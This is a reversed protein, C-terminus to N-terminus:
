KKPNLYAVKLGKNGGSSRSPISRAAQGIDKSIKGLRDGAADAVQGTGATVRGAMGATSSASTAVISSLKSALAGGGGANIIFGAVTPVSLYGVIGIILFILYSADASSFYTQGNQAGSNIQELDVKLMQVQLQGLIAGFINCVPLWLFVNLYKAIWASVTHQFGDFVALGFVLPGLIALVIMQFTRIANIGLSAAQYLVMLIESLYMKTANKMKYWSAKYYFAIDPKFLKQILSLDKGEEVGFAYKAYKDVDGAGDDGIYMQYEDTKKLAQEKLALMTKIPTSTEGVMEKTIEVAPQMMGDLLKIVMPFFIICFGLVFPRFLPYFDIQEANVLHRWIRMAIYFLAAFGAIARGLDILKECNPMMDEYLTNLVTQMQEYQKIGDQAKGPLSAMLMLLALGMKIMWRM